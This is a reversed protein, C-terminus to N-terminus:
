KMAPISLVFSDTLEMNAYAIDAQADCVPRYTYSNEDFPEGLWEEVWRSPMLVDWPEGDVPTFGLAACEDIAAWVEANEMEWTDVLQVDNKPRLLTIRVSVMPSETSELMAKASLVAEEDTRCEFNIWSQDLGCHYVGSEESLPNHIWFETVKNMSTNGCQIAEVLVYTKETTDFSLMLRLGTESLAASDLTVATGAGAYRAAAAGDASLANGTCNPCPKLEQYPAKSLESLKFVTMPLYEGSLCECEALTHYYTGGTPNYYLTSDAFPVAGDTSRQAAEIASMDYGAERLLSTFHERLEFNIGAFSKKQAQEYVYNRKGADWTRQAYPWFDDIYWNCFDLEGSKATFRVLYEGPADYNHDLNIDCDRRPTIYIDWEPEKGMYPYEYFTPYVGMAELEERPTGFREIIQAYAFELAEEYPMDGERPLSSIVMDEKLTGGSAAVQAEYAELGAIGDNWESQTNMKGSSANWVAIMEEKTMIYDNEQALAFNVCVCLCLFCGALIRKLM